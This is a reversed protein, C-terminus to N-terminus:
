LSSLNGEARAPTVWFAELFIANEPVVRNDIKCTEPNGRAGGGGGGIRDQLDNEGVYCYKGDHMAASWKEKIPRM